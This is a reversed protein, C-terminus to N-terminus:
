IIIIVRDLVASILVGFLPVPASCLLTWECSVQSVLLNQVAASM